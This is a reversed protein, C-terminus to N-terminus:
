FYLKAGLQMIRPDRFVTIRGFLQNGLQVSGLGSPNPHNPFNFAEGRLQLRLRENFQFNKFLSLDWRQFGPLRIVGRGANGPRVEGAPVNAFCATNFWQAVTQPAGSNPNCIMDPRGGAVSSGLFGLGAPDVGSTTPTTPLGTAIQTAGSVEWGKLAYGLAGKATRFVPLEYVYNFTLVHTRDLAAPGYEGGHWNYSNQPANSRDSWNDTMNKSWTYAASFLGAEGFDKRFSAQLSHYNSDFATHVQNISNFGPYPRVANIRPTDGATFATGTGTHLGAALAAGPPAENVDVVGLLHTGKSGFYGVDLMM